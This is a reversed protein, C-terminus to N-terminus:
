YSGKNSKKDSQRDPKEPKDNQNPTHKGAM